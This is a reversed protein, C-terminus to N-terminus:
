QAGFLELRQEIRVGIDDNEVRAPEILVPRHTNRGPDIHRSGFGPVSTTTFQAPRVRLMM